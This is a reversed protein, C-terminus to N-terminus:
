LSMPLLLREFYGSESSDDVWSLKIRFAAPIGVTYMLAYGWLETPELEQPLVAESSKGLRGRLAWALPAYEHAPKDDICIKIERARAKGTNCIQLDYHTGSEQKSRILKAILRAKLKEHEQNRTIILQQEAIATQKKMLETQNRAIDTQLKSITTQQGQYFTQRQFLDTQKEIIDTQRKSIRSQRLAMVALIITAFCALATSIASILDTTSIIENPM